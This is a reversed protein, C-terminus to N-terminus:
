DAESGRAEEKRMLMRALFPNGLSVILYRALQHAGVFVPDLHLALALVRM